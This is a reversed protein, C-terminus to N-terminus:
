EPKAAFKLDGPDSIAMWFGNGSSGSHVKVLLENRGAKLPVDLKFQGKRPAYRRESLDKVLEGNLWIKAWYDVGNALRAPRASSAYLYTVAYCIGKSYEHYRAFFDV